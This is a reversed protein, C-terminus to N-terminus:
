QGWVEASLEPVTYPMDGVISFDCDPETDLNILAKRPYYTENWLLDSWAAIALAKPKGQIVGLTLLSLAAGSINRKEWNSAANWLREYKADLATPCAALVEAATATGASDKWVEARNVPDASYLDKATCIRATFTAPYVPPQGPNLAAELKGVGQVMITKPTIQERTIVTHGAYCESCSAFCLLIITLCIRTM